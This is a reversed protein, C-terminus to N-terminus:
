FIRAIRNGRFEFRRRSTMLRPSKGERERERQRISPRRHRATDRKEECIDTKYGAAHERTVREVKEEGCDVESRACM